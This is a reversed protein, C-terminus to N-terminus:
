HCGMLGDTCSLTYGSGGLRIGGGHSHLVHGRSGLHSSEFIQQFFRRSYMTKGTIDHLIQLATHDVHM